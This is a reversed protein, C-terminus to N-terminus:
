KRYGEISDIPYLTSSNFKKAIDQFDEITIIEKEYAEVLGMVKGDKILWLRNGDSYTITIDKITDYCISQIYWLESSDFMAVYADNYKGIYKVIKISEKSIQENLHLYFAEILEDVPVANPNEYVKPEDYTGTHMGNIVRVLLDDLYEVVEEESVTADIHSGGIGSHNTLHAYCGNTMICESRFLFETKKDIGSAAVNIIRIGQNSLNAVSGFWNAVDYDHAPADAVHVLIKTAPDSTWQKETAEKLAQQVAEEFDGGGSANQKSLNIVQADIDTTFDFYRTVYEDGKDRYFMLSLEVDTNNADSIRGIVDKIEAKLYSIEDGMSGTTDIVFMIQIKDKTKTEKSLTIEDGDKVTFVDKEVGNTVIINYEEAPYDTFLYCVGNKDARSTWLIEKSDDKGLLMVTALPGNTIKISVRNLPLKFADQYRYFEGEAEQGKLTLNYFFDYDDNDFIASASLQHSQEVSNGWYDDEYTSAAGWGEYYYAKGDVYGDVRGSSPYDIVGPMPDYGIESEGIVGSDGSHYGSDGSEDGKETSNNAPLLDIVQSLSCSVLLLSSMVLLILIFIKKM